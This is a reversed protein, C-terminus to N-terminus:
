FVHLRTHGGKTNILPFSGVASPSHRRGARGGPAGRGYPAFSYKDKVYSLEVRVSSRITVSTLLGIARQVECLGDVHMLVSAHFM